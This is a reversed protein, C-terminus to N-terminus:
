KYGIVNRGKQPADMAHKWIKDRLAEEINRPESTVALCGYRITGDTYIKPKRIGGQLRTHPRASPTTELESPASSGPSSVSSGPPTVVEHATAPSDRSTTSDLIPPPVIDGRAGHTSAARGPSSREGRTPAPNIRVEFSSAPLPTQRTNAGHSSAPDTHVESGLGPLPTQRMDDFVHTHPVYQDRAPPTRAPSKDTPRLGLTSTTPAVVEPEASAGDAVGQIGQSVCNERPVQNVPPDNTPPDAVYDYGSNVSPFLHPPLLQVESRLRAGANPHLKSFSFIEEDFTVYQSIYIRGSSVYVSSGRICTVIVLSSVSKPTFNFSANIIHAFIQGVVV